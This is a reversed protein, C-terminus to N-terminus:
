CAPAVRARRLGVGDVDRGGERGGPCLRGLLTRGKEKGPRM